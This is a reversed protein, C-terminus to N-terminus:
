AQAESQYKIVTLSLRTAALDARRGCVKVARLCAVAVASGVTFLMMFIWLSDSVGRFVLDQRAVAAQLEAVYLHM